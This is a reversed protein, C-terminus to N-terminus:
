YGLQQLHKIHQALKEVTAYRQFGFHTVYKTGRSDLLIHFAQDAASRVARGFCQSLRQLMPITISFESALAHGFEKKLRTYYLKNEISPPAYPLATVILMKILSKGARTFEVGESIKGGAVALIVKKITSNVVISQITSVDAERDEVVQFTEPSTQYLQKLYSYSPAFILTHGDTTDILMKLADVIRQFYSETRNEYKASFQPNSIVYFLNSRKNQPFVRFLRANSLGFLKQFSRLPEFSGSMLVLRKSNHVRSLIKSPPDSMLKLSDKTVIIEKNNAASLFNYVLFAYINANQRRKLDRALESFLKQEFEDFESEPFSLQVVKEEGFFERLHRIIPHNFERLAQRIANISLTYTYPQFLNHAEDIGVLLNAPPTNITTLLKNHLYSNVLYPYTALVIDAKQLLYNSFYFPCYKAQDLSSYFEAYSVLDTISAYIAKFEKIIQEHPMNETHTKLKCKILTCLHTYLSAPYDDKAMVCLENKGVLPFVFPFHEFHSEFFHWNKIILQNILAIERLYVNIQAKTRVFIILKDEPNKVSLLGVLLAITKGVGTRTSFMAPKDSRIIASIMRKQTRKIIHYPFLSHILENTEIESTSIFDDM